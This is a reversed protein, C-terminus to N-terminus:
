RSIYRQGGLASYKGAARAEEKLKEAKTPDQRTIRAQATVDFLAGAMWPNAASSKTPRDADAASKDAAVNRGGFFEECSPDSRLAQIASWANNDDGSAIRAKIANRLLAPDAAGAGAVVDDIEGDLKGREAILELKSEARQRAARESALQEDRKRLEDKLREIDKM